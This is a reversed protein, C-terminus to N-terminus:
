EKGKANPDVYTAGGASAASIPQKETKLRRPLGSRGSM